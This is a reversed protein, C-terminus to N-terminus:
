LQTLRRLTMRSVMVLLVLHKLTSRALKRWPPSPTASTAAVNVENPDVTGELPQVAGAGLVQLAVLISAAPGIFFRLCNGLPVFRTAM